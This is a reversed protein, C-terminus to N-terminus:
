FRINTLQRGKSYVAWKGNGGDVLRLDSVEGFRNINGCFYLVYKNNRGRAKINGYMDM